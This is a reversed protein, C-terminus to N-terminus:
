YPPSLVSLRHSGKCVDALRLRQTPRRGFMVEAGRVVVTPSGSKSGAEVHGPFESSPSVYAAVVHHCGDHMVCYRPLKLATRLTAPQSQRGRHPGHIWSFIVKVAPMAKPAARGTSSPCHKASVFISCAAKTPVFTVASISHLSFTPIGQKSDAQHKM